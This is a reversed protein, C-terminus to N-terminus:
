KLFWNYIGIGDIVIFFCYRITLSNISKKIANVLCFTHGILFFIFAYKAYPEINTAILLGAVIFNLTGIWNLM